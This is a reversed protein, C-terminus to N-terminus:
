YCLSILSHPWDYYLVRVFVSFPASVQNRASPFDAHHYADFHHAIVITEIQQKSCLETQVHNIMLVYAHIACKHRRSADYLLDLYAQYGNNEFFVPNRSHGRQVIHAAVGLLFFRLKWPM